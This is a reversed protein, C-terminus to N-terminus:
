GGVGELKWECMQMHRKSILRLISREKKEIRYEVVVNGISILDFNAERECPEETTLITQEIM